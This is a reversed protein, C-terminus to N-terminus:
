KGMGMVWQQLKFLGMKGTLDQCSVALVSLYIEQPSNLTFVTELTNALNLSLVTGQPQFGHPVMGNKNRSSGPSVAMVSVLGSCTITATKTAAIHPFTVLFSGPSHLDDEQDRGM